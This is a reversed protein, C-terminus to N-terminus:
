YTNIGEWDGRQGVGFGVHFSSARATMRIVDRATRRQQLQLQPHAARHWRVIRFPPRHCTEPKISTDGCVRGSCVCMSMCMCYWVCVCVCGCLCEYMCVYMCVYVLMCMYVRICMYVYVRRCMCTSVCVCVPPGPRTLFQKRHDLDMRTAQNTTTRTGCGTQSGSGSNTTPAGFSNKTQENNQM